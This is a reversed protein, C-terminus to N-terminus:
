VMSISCTNSIQMMMSDPIIRLSRDNRIRKFKYDVHLWPRRSQYWINCRWQGSDSTRTTATDNFCQKISIDAGWIRASLWAIRAQQYEQILRFIFSLDAMGPLMVSM